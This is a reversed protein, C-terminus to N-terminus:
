SLADATARQVVIDGSATRAHVVLTEDGEAPGDSPTLLNRVEGSRSRLDLQAATGEAIGVVVEGSATQVSIGGNVATAATVDGSATQANLNGHLRTVTVSGSAARFKVDGDLDGITVDGSVTSVSGSGSVDGIAIGGSVNDAKLNGVVSGVELDGSVSAFKCDAYRGDATINASVASVNLRSGSPLAIDVVIAGRRPFSFGRQSTVTLAGNKFDVRVQEAAKVDHSRSEDRPRVDVVTDDRDSAVLRMSGASIEVTATIPQPTDFNPM